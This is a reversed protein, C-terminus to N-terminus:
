FCQLWCNEGDVLLTVLLVTIYHGTLHRCVTWRQLWFLTVLHLLQKSCVSSNWSRATPDIVVNLDSLTLAVPAQRDRGHYSSMKANLHRRSRHCYCEIAVRRGVGCYRFVYLWIMMSCNSSLTGGAWLEVIRDVGVRTWSLLIVGDFWQWGFCENPKVIYEVITSQKTFCLISNSIEIAPLFYRGAISFCNKNALLRIIQKTLELFM